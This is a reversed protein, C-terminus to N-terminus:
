DLITDTNTVSESFRKKKILLYVPDLIWLITIPFLPIIFINRLFCRWFGLEGDAKINVLMMGLTKGISYEMLTFYVFSLIGLLLIISSLQPSLGQKLSLTNFSVNKSILSSFASFVIVNLILIDAAFALLRRFFGAAEPTKEKGLRAIMEDANM